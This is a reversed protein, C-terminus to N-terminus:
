HHGGKKMERRTALFDLFQHFIMFSILGAILLMYFYKILLLIFHQYYELPTFEEQAKQALLSKFPKL